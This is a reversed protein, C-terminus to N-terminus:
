PPSGNRFLSIKWIIFSNFLQPYGKILVTVLPIFISSHINSFIISDLSSLISNENSPEETSSFSLILTPLSALLTKFLISLNTYQFLFNCLLVGLIMMELQWIGESSFIRSPSNGFDGSYIMFYTEFYESPSM